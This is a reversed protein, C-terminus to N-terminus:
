GTALTELKNCGLMPGHDARQVLVAIGQGPKFRDAPVTWTSAAGNWRGVIEFRRVINFNDLKRGSNEGSNVPTNHRRDYVALTVDAAGSELAFAALKITLTGDAGLALEPTARRPSRRRRGCPM